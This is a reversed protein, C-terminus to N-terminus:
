PTLSEISPMPNYFERVRCIVGDRFWYVGIYTNRYAKQTTTVHGEGAYEVVLVDPDLGQHVDTIDLRFKFIEFAGRLYARVAERGDIASPPDAYPLDLILDETYNELMEDADAHSIGVFARRVAELNRVRRDADSITPEVDAM